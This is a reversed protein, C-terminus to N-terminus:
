ESGHDQLCFKSGATPAGAPGPLAGCVATFPSRGQRIRAGLSDRRGYPATPGGTTGLHPPPRTRPGGQSGSGNRGNTPAPPGLGHGRCRRAARRPQRRQGGGHRRAGARRRLARWRMGADRGTASLPVPAAAEAPMRPFPPMGPGLDAPGARVKRGSGVSPVRGLPLQAGPARAVGVRAPSSPGKRSAAAPRSRGARTARGHPLGAPPPGERWAPVARAASQHGGRGRAWRGRGRSRRPLFVSRETSNLARGAIATRSGRVALRFRM